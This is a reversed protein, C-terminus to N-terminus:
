VVLEVGKEIGIIHKYITTTHYSKNETRPKMIVKGVLYISRHVYKCTQNQYPIIFTDFSTSFKLKINWALLFTDRKTKNERFLIKVTVSECLAKDYQTKEFGM